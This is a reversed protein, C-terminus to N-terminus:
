DRLQRQLKCHSIHIWSPREAIKVAMPTTLLVQFPGEWRPSMWSKSKIMKIFVWDGPKIPNEPDQLVFPCIPLNHASQVEKALIIKRMYDALTLEDDAKQLDPAVLPLRYPRDYIIEFPTLGQNTPTIRM